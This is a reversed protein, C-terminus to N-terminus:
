YYDLSIPYNLIANSWFPVTVAAVDDGRVSPAAAVKIQSSSYALSLLKSIKALITEVATWPHLGSVIPKPGIPAECFAKSLALSVILSISIMSSFSANADWDNAQM